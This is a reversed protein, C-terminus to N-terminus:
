HIQHVRDLRELGRASMPAGQSTRNQVAKSQIPRHLFVFSNTPLISMQELVWKNALRSLLMMFDRKKTKTFGYPFSLFLCLNRIDSARLELNRNTYDAPWARPWGIEIM